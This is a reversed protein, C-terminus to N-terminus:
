MSIVRLCLVIELSKRCDYVKYLLLFNTTKCTCFAVPSARDICWHIEDM